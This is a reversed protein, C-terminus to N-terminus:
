SYRIRPSTTMCREQEQSILEPFYPGVISLLWQHNRYEKELFGMSFIETHGVQEHDILHSFIVLSVTIMKSFNFVATKGLYHVYYLDTILDIIKRASNLPVRRVTTIRTNM